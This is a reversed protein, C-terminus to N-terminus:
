SARLDLEYVVGFEYQDFAFIGDAVHVVETLKLFSSVKVSCIELLNCPCYFYSRNKAVIILHIKHHLNPKLLAFYHSLIKLETM